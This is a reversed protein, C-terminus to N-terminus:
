ITLYIIIRINNYITVGKFSKNRIHSQSTFTDNNAEILLSVTRLIGKYMNSSVHVVMKHLRDHSCRSSNSSTEQTMDISTADWLLIFFLQNVHMYKTLNEKFLAIKTNESSPSSSKQPTKLTLSYAASTIPTCLILLNYQLMCISLLAVMAM